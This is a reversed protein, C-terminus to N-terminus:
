KNKLRPIFLPYDCLKDALSSSKLIFHLTILVSSLLRLSPSSWAFLLMLDSTLLYWRYWPSTIFILYISLVTGPMLEM